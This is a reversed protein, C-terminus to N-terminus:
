RVRRGPPAGPPLRSLEATAVRALEEAGRVDASAPEAAGYRAGEFLRALASLGQPVVGIRGSLERATDGPRRLLGVASAARLVGAYARVIRVRGESGSPQAREPEPALAEEAGREAV